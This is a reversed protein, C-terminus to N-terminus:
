FVITVFLSFDKRLQNIFNEGSNIWNYENQIILDHEEAFKLMYPLPNRLFVIDVDVLLVTYELCLSMYVSVTKYNTKNRYGEQGYLSEKKSLSDNWLGIAHVNKSVLYQEAKEHSCVFLYNNINFQKFSSEYLNLAMEVFGLDTVALIIVNDEAYNAIMKAFKKDFPMLDCTFHEPQHYPQQQQSINKEPIHQPQQQQTYQQQQHQQLQQEIIKRNNAEIHSENDPKM